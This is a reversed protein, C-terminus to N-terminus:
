TFRTKSRSKENRWSDFLFGIYFLLNIPANFPDVAFLFVSAEKGSSTAESPGHDFSQSAANVTGRDIWTDRTAISRSRTGTCHVAPLIGSVRFDRALAPSPSLLSSPSWTSSSPEVTVSAADDTAATAVAATAM